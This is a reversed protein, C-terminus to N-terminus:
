KLSLLKESQEKTLFCIKKNRDRIFKDGCNKADELSNFIKNEVLFKIVNDHFHYCLICGYSRNSGLEYRRYYYARKEDLFKYRDDNKRTLEWPTLYIKKM